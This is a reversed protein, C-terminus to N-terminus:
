ISSSGFIHAAAESKDRPEQFTEPFFTRLRKEEENAHALLRTQTASVRGVGKIRAYVEIKFSDLVRVICCKNTACRNSEYLPYAADAFFNSRLVKAKRKKQNM